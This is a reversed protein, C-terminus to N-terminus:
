AREESERAAGEIPVLELREAVHRAGLTAHREAQALREELIARDM